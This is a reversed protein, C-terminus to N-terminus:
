KGLYAISNLNDILQQKVLFIHHFYNKIIKPLIAYINKTSDFSIKKNQEM